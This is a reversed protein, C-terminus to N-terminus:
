KSASDDGFDTIAGYAFYEDPGIPQDILHFRPLHVDERKDMAGPSQAETAGGSTGLLFLLLVGPTRRAPRDDGQKDGQDDGREAGARTM